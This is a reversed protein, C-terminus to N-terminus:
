RPRVGDEVTAGGAAVLEGDRWVERVRGALGTLDRPDGDLVVLDARKGPELTGFEEAAGLLEAAGRTTARWVEDPTMGCGAMLALEDLNTGHPGVGSDTGMAIRVGAAVARRVSAEHAEQVLRAKEVVTAPLSAGAAAAALVARPAVLTPVLWTGRDLMLDIAEDDLYIGHEISRIGARV